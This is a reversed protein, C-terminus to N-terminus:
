AAKPSVRDLLYCGRIGEVWIVASHGGLIEAKTLTKGEHLDGGDKRVVVQTGVPHKLNWNEVELELVKLSKRKMESEM